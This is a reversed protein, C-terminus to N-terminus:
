RVPNNLLDIIIAPVSINKIIETSGKIYYPTFDVTYGYVFVGVPTASHGTTGYMYHVTNGQESTYSKYISSPALKDGSVSLYGTEHDATIIIATDTRDGIWALIMEVTKNLNDVCRMAGEFDNNHSHKDIHAQEIMLVFGDEDKSLFRLAPDIVSTLDENLTIQWYAYDKNISNEIENMSTCRTYLKNHEPNKSLSAAEETRTGCLLNVGSTFQDIILDETNDRSLSHASFAAPTAGVISDTTVIGTAKGLSSAHDLVTQLETATSDIGVLDNRTLTGTALATGGAASDTVGGLANTTDSKAMQWDHYPANKGSLLEQGQMHALGFGDGIIYIVNKIEHLQPATETPTTTENGCACICLTMCLALLLALLKKM